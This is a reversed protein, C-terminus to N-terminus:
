EVISLLGSPVDVRRELPSQQSWNRVPAVWVTPWMTAASSGRPLWQLGSTSPTPPYFSASFMLEVSLQGYRVYSSSGVVALPEEVRLETCRLSAGFRPAIRTVPPGAAASRGGPEWRLSVSKGSRLFQGAVPSLAKLYNILLPLPATDASHFTGKGGVRSGEAPVCAADSTNQQFSRQVGSFRPCCVGM